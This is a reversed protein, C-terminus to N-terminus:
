NSPLIPTSEVHTLTMDIDVEGEEDITVTVTAELLLDTGVFYRESKIIEVTPTPPTPSPTPASKRPRVTIGEDNLMKNIAIHLSDVSSYSVALGHHSEWLAEAYEAVTTLRIGMYRFCHRSKSNRATTVCSEQERM